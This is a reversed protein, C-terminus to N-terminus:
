AWSGAYRSGREADVEDRAESIKEALKPGVGSVSSLQARTAALASGASGFREMLMRWTQPGVGPVSTLQILDLLREDVDSEAM